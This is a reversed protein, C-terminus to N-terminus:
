KLTFRGVSSCVFFHPVFYLGASDIAALKSIWCYFGLDPSLLLSDGNLLSSPIERIDFLTPFYQFHHMASTDEMRWFDKSQVDGLSYRVTLETTMSLLIKSLQRFREEKVARM